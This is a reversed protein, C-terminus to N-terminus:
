KGLKGSQSYQSLIAKIDLEINASNLRKYEKRFESADKTLKLGTIKQNLLDKYVIDKYHRILPQPKHNKLVKVWLPFVGKAKGIYNNAADIVPPQLETLIRLCPEANQPNYFLEEFSKPIIEEIKKQSQKPPLQNDILEVWNYFSDQQEISLLNIFQKTHNVWDAKEGGRRVFWKFHINLFNAIENPQKKALDGKFMNENFLKLINYNKAPSAKFSVQISSLDYVYYYKLLNNEKAYDFLSSFLNSLQELGLHGTMKQNTEFLLPIGYSTINAGFSNKIAIEQSIKDFYFQWCDNLKQWFIMSSYESEKQKAGWFELRSYEPEALAFLLVEKFNIM